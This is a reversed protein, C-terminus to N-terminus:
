QSLRGPENRFAAIWEDFDALRVLIKSGLRYHPLPHRPDNLYSRLRGVSVGAHAALRRLGVFERPDVAAKSM